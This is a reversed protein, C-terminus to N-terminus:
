LEPRKIQLVLRSEKHDGKIGLTVELLHDDDIEDDWSHAGDNHPREFWGTVAACSGVRPIWAELLARTDDIPAPSSVDCEAMDEPYDPDPHLIVCHQTGAITAQADVGVHDGVEVPRATREAAFNGASDAVWRDLDACMAATDGAPVPKSHTAAPKHSRCGAALLVTVLAVRVSM